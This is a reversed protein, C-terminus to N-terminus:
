SLCPLMALSQRLVIWTGVVVLGCLGGLMKHNEHQPLVPYLVPAPPIALPNFCKHEQLPGPNQNGAGVNHSVVDMPVCLTCM